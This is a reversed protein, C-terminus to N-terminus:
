NKRRVAKNIKESLVSFVDGNAVSAKSKLQRGNLSLASVIGMLANTLYVADYDFLSEVSITEEKVSFGWEALIKIVNKEMIGALRGSYPPIVATKDMVAIVNATDTELINGHSDLIVAEDAGKLSASRCAADYFVRSATKLEAFGGSHPIEFTALDLGAKGKVKLRHTYPAATISLSYGPPESVAHASIRVRAPRIDLRNKKLLIKIIDAYSVDPYPADNDRYNKEYAKDNYRSLSFRNGLIHDWARFFRELHDELFFIEGNEAYVTEFFGIGSAGRDTIKLFPTDDPVFFGNLWMSNKDGSKCGANDGIRDSTKIDAGLIEIISSAKHLTEMYEEEPDSDSVIGGGASFCIKGDKIVCTRIAVSLDLSDNFGIYGISGTYVHRRVPELEDIIEMSRIKPCGTISGAPFVAKLFDVMGCSEDIDASICSLLHHVNQYSEMKKHFNVNVSGPVAIKGFDNRMLDVIMTLEADDKPSSLLDRRMKEDEEPEAMRPRTGKIPMTEIKRGRMSVFREPSTSVVVHDGANIFAYFSAPNVRFLEQFLCFADGSFDAEFRQSLNVQYVDGATIYEKIDNVAKIYSDRSFVSKLNSSHFGRESFNNELSSYFWEMLTDRTEDGTEVTHIMIKGTRIEEVLIISPACLYLDPLKLDDIVTDPLKELQRCLDYSLYGFLGANIPLGDIVADHPLRYESLIKGIIDFPNGYIDQEHRHNNECIHDYEPLHGRRYEDAQIDGSYLIKIRNGKSSVTLWPKLALINFRSSGGSTQSGYLFVTGPIDRFCGAIDSFFRETKLEETSISKIFCVTM